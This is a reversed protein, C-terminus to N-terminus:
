ERGVRLDRQILDNDSIITEGCSKGAHTDPYTIPMRDSGKDMHVCGYVHVIPITRM